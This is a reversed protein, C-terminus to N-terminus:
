EDEEITTIISEATLRDTILVDIFEGKMAAKISEVKEKGGAVGIVKDINKLESLTLGIARKNLSIDCIEGDEDFFRSCIDGIAGYERLEKIEEEQFYGTKLLNSSEIPSGIGVLAIDVNRAKELIEETEKNKMIAECVERNDVIVPAYLYFGRGDYNDLLKDALINSHVKSSLDGTGGALTVVSLDNIQNNKQLNDVMAKLTRGWSIGIDFEDRVIRDFYDAAKEGICTLLNAPDNCEAIKVEELGYYKEIKNEVSVLHGKNKLDIINIKVIGEERAERLLNSVTPRSVELKNAIEQQTLKEQYYYKAAKLKLEYNTINM